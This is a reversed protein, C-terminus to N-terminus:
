NIYAKRIYERFYDMFGQGIPRFTYLRDGIIAHGPLDWILQYMFTVKWFSVRTIPKIIM